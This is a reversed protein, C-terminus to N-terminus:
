IPEEHRFVRPGRVEIGVFHALLHAPYDLTQAFFERAGEFVLGCWRIGFAFDTFFFGGAARSLLVRLFRLRVAPPQAPTIIGAPRPEPRCVV